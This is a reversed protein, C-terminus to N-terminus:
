QPLTEINETYDCDMCWRKVPRWENKNDYITIYDESNCKPCQM